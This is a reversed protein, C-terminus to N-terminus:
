NRDQALVDVSQHPLCRVLLVSHHTQRHIALSPWTKEAFSNLTFLRRFVRYTFM